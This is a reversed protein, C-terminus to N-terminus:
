GLIGVGFLDFKLDVYEEVNGGNWRGGFLRIGLSLWYFCGFKIFFGILFFWWGVEDVGVDGSEFRVGGVFSGLWM